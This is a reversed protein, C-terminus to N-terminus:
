GGKQGIQITYKNIYTSTSDLIKSYPIEIKSAMETPLITETEGTLNRIANAIKELTNDLIFYTFSWKAYLQFIYDENYNKLGFLTAVKDDVNAKTGDETYWGLFTIGRNPNSYDPLDASTLKYGSATVALDEPSDGYENNYQITWNVKIQAM